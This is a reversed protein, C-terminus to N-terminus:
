SLDALLLIWLSHACGTHLPGTKRKVHFMASPNPTKWQQIWLPYLREVDHKVHFQAAQPYSRHIVHRTSIHGGFTIPTSTQPTPQVTSPAEAAESSISGPCHGTLQALTLTTGWFV